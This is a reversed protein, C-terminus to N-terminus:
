LGQSEIQLIGVLIPHPRPVMDERKPIRFYPTHVARFIM